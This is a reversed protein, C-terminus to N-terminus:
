WVVHKILHHRAIDVELRWLEFVLLILTSRQCSMLLRRDGCSTFNDLM